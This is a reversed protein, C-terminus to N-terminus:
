SEGLVKEAQMAIMDDKLCNLAHMLEPPAAKVRLEELLTNILSRRNFPDLRVITLIQRKMRVDDIAANVFMTLNEREDIEMTHRRSSFFRRWETLVRMVFSGREEPAGAFDRLPRAQDSRWRPLCKACVCYTEDIREARGALVERKIVGNNCLTCKYITPYTGPTVAKAM